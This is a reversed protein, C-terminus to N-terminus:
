ETRVEVEVPFGLLICTTKMTQALMTDLTAQDYPLSEKRDHPSKFHRVEFGLEFNKGLIAFHYRFIRLNDRGVASSARSM